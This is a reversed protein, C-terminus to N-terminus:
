GSIKGGTAEFGQVMRKGWPSIWDSFIIIEDLGDWEETLYPEAIMRYPRDLHSLRKLVTEFTIGKEHLPLVVGLAADHRLPKLAEGWQMVGLRDDRFGLHLHSFIEKSFRLPDGVCDFLVIPPVEDPLYAALHHLYSAFDELPYNPVKGKYIVAGLTEKQYREWVTEAFHKVALQYSSLQPQNLSTIQFDLEWLIEPANSEVEWKLDSCLSADLSYLTLSSPLPSFGRHDITPMACTTFKLDM